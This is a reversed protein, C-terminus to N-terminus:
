QQATTNLIGNINLPLSNIEDASKLLKKIQEARDMTDIDVIFIQDRNRKELGRKYQKDYYALLIRIFDAMQGDRIAQVANKSQEPGVRKSIRLCCEALFNPELVGYETLLKQLRQEFSVELCLVHASRMQDFFPKPIIRKGIRVSEDEIWIRKDPDCSILASAFNNEFQEQTPQVLRNMSGFASGQHQALAELDIVQESCCKLEGLLDTKGSGTMGGLILLKWSHEFQGLVWNRYRKYGGELLYVEFGYLSLAWAMASSRMGGRWCHVAVRKGPAIELAQKIFGSWKSGSLDFGLLIAAERGVQKYTTGVQIREENTFLPINFAGPVHAQEFEAPTRVDILPVPEPFSMYMDISIAKTM